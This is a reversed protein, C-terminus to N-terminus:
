IDYADINENHRTFLEELDEYYICEDEIQEEDSGSYLAGVVQLLRGVDDDKGVGADRGDRAGM